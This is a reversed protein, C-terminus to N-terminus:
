PSRHRRVREAEEFRLRAEAAEGREREARADDILERERAHVICYVVSRTTRLAGVVIIGIAAFRVLAARALAVHGDHPPDFAGGLLGTTM